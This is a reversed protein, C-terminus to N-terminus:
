DLGTVPANRKPELVITTSFHSTWNRELAEICDQIINNFHNKGEIKAYMLLSSPKQAEDRIARVTTHLSNLEKGIEGSQILSRQLVQLAEM